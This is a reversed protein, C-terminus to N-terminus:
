EDVLKVWPLRTGVRNYLRKDSTWLECGLLDALALFHSDYAKREPFRREIDLARVHMEDNHVVHLQILSM